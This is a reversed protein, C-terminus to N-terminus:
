AGRHHYFFQLLFSQVPPFPNVIVARHHLYVFLFGLAEIVAQLLHLLFELGALFFEIDVAMGDDLSTGNLVM